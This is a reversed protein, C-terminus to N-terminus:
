RESGTCRLQAPSQSAACYGRQGLVAGTPNHPSNLIVLRTKATLANAFSDWDMAFDPARLPLHVPIGGALRVAPDYSDYAPDFLIVEDGRHVFAQIASFLASTAGSTVTVESEAELRRGYLRQIKLAIAERLAPLGTMPAYQNNGTRLQRCALELLETPPQFDPFGQSLNIAGHRGALESMVTFITTGTDPLKSRHATM